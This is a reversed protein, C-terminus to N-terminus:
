QPQLILGFGLEHGIQPYLLATIKKNKGWKLTQLPNWYSTLIGSALGIGAGALVDSAYHRNNAIRLIGTATAFLFGSSAYWANAEKYEHFLLTANTFAIATHGSPFSLDNSADPREKKVIHKLIEVIILSTTNAVAIDITQHKFNNKPQFGLYKGTYIQAIPAFPLINDSFSHFNEGFLHQAKSQIKINLNSNLLLTGSTILVSPIIFKKYSIKDKNKLNSISDNSQANGIFVLFLLLLPLRKIKM